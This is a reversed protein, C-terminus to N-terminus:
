FIDVRVNIHKVGYIFCCYIFFALSLYNTVTKKRILDTFNFAVCGGGPFFNLSKKM